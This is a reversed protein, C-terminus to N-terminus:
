CRENEKTILDIYATVEPNEACFVDWAKATVDRAVLAEETPNDQMFVNLNANIADLLLRSAKLLLKSDPITM